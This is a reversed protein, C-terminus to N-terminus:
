HPSVEIEAGWLCTTDDTDEGYYAVFFRNTSLKVITPYGLNKNPFHADIAREDAVDWESATGDKSVVAFIGLPDVRRGFVMLFRGGELRAVDAPYGNVGVPVPKTWTDGNDSSRVHFLSRTSNERLLVVVQGRENVFPCPEEFYKGDAAAVLSPESWTHGGDSSKVGFVKQYHPVDSMPLFITGDSLVASGRMGYGGSYSGTDIQVTEEWTRGGDYSHHVYTKGSARAWPALENPDGAIEDPHELECSSTMEGVWDAPFSIAETEKQRRAAETTLWDFQWQNIMLHGAGLDTFGSCEMGSWNYGPVVRPTSWSAGEDVSRIVFNIYRPDEPPHLVYRRRVSQNFVLVIEGSELRVAHPHATYSYVDRYIVGSRITTLNIDAM